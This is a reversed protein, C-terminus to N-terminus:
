FTSKSLASPLNCLLFQVSNTEFFPNELHNKLFLIKGSAVMRLEGDLSMASKESCGHGSIATRSLVMLFIENEEVIVAQCNRKHLRAIEFKGLM